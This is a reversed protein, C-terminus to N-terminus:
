PATKSYTIINNFSLNLYLFIVKEAITARIKNTIEHDTAGHVVTNKYNWLSRTNMSLNNGAIDMNYQIFHRTREFIGGDPCSSPM